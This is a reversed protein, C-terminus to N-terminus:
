KLRRYVKVGFPEINSKGEQEQNSLLEIMPDNVLIEHQKSDFNLVFLYENTKDERIQISVSSSDKIISQQKNLGIDAVIKQYFDALFDTDTRCAIFYASGQGVPHNTAAATGAYFDQTYSALVEATDVELIECYDTARYGHDGAKIENAQQPYLTDTEKVTLGYLQQLQTPWGGIYALDREDVVGSIYTGVVTGGNSAFKALKDMFKEAMLFHMPDIVLRYKALDTEPSIIDVPIDHQWFYQYHQQLTQWYKKTAMSYNQSDNLAWMNSQDFVIAVEACQYPVDKIESLKTLDMGVQKVDKFVRTQNSGNQTIVAGHFMESAGRSQRWQFYLNSDSGHAIHQLSALQHVGPRKAHNVPHWNVQSPTSEMILFDQQKLSRFYDDIMAVKMGTQAPTEFDNNWAPYCDWSVVDLHKAFKYYDLGHFPVMDFTDSMFNTTIPVDPTILRLPKIENEYFNITQDSVFRRWDLNLGQLSTDGLPSPLHIQSWDTYCHSWFTTWWADNLAELTGYKNKLWNRFAAQCLDCHCEGGYENSIHWMLLGKRQGYRKALLTNFERVKERYIPATFCHNHREGFLLKEGKENTRLVEPYKQALWAPRAGSPTALIVKGGIKEMRDFVDDLWEFHYVGEEPEIASWSFMGVTVTNAHAEQMMKFDQDLIAPYKQWQEPNYDGGHLLFTSNLRNM